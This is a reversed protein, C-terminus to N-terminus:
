AGTVGLSASDLLGVRIADSALGARTDTEVALVPAVMLVTAVELVVAVSLASVAELVGSGFAGLPSFDVLGRLPGLYPPM